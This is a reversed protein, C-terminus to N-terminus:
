FSANMLAGFYTTGGSLTVSATKPSSGVGNAHAGSFGNTTSGTYQVGFDSSPYTWSFGIASGARGCAGSLVAGNGPINISASLSGGSASTSSSTNYTTSSGRSGTLTYVGIGARSSSNSTSVVINATAGSSVLLAYIAAPLYNGTSGGTTSVLSTASTGGITVGSITTGPSSTVACAVVLVVRDSSATGISQSTFTFSTGSTNIQNNGIYSITKSLTSVIVIPPPSAFFMAPADVISAVFFLLSLAFRLIKM